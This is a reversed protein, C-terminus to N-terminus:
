SGWGSLTPLHHEGMGVALEGGHHYDHSLVHWIIEQRMIPGFLEREVETLTAPPAFVHALDAVTRRALTGEIASWTAELGAVLEAASRVPQGAGDWNALPILDAEGEGMWVHFWWARDTILHQIAMGLPWHHPAVPLALQEPSLPAIIRVLSRQFGDWGRYVVALPLAHEIMTTPGRHVLSGGIQRTLQSKENSRHGASLVSLNRMPPRYVQRM